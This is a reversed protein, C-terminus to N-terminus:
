KLYQNLASNSIHIKHMLFGCENCEPIQLKQTTDISPRKNRAVSDPIWTPFSTEPDASNM